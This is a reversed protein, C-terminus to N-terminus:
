VEKTIASLDPKKFLHRIRMLETLRLSLSEDKIPNRDTIVRRDTYAWLTLAEFDGMMWQKKLCDGHANLAESYAAILTNVAEDMFVLKEVLLAQNLAEHVAHFKEGAEDAKEFEQVERAKLGNLRIVNAGSNQLLHLKTEAQSLAEAAKVQSADDNTAMAKDFAKRADDVAATHSQVEDSIVQELAQIKGTTVACEADVQDIV